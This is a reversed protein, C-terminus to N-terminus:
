QQELATQSKGFHRTLFADLADRYAPMSMSFGENHDGSIDVFKKEGALADFLRRGLRYPVIEDDPSHLSLTPVALEHAVVVSNWVDGTLIRVVPSLLDLRVMDSLSSFTSELILAGPTVYRMLEMAVAGGLSRGFVVIKSPDVRRERTLWEWAAMADEATGAVSPKGQSKGYGRYDIIFVSLGLSHFIEISELRDSINGANGHFFLLTARPNEAPVYWGHIKLGDSTTLYIDEFALGAIDPTFQLRGSPHFVIWNLCFRGVILASAIYLCIRIMSYFRKRRKTKPDPENM